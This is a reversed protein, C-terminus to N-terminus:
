MTKTHESMTGEQRRYVSISQTAIDIPCLQYLVQNPHPQHPFTNPIKVVPLCVCIYFVLYLLYICNVYWANGRRIKQIIQKSEFLLSWNGWGEQYFEHKYVFYSQMCNENKKKMRFVLNLLCNNRWLRYFCMERPAMM